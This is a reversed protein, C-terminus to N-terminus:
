TCRHSMGRRLHQGERRMLVCSEQELGVSPLKRHKSGFHALCQVVQETRSASPIMAVPLPGIVPVQLNLINTRNLIPDPEISTAITANAKTSQVPFTYKFTWAEIYDTIDLVYFVYLNPQDALTSVSLVIKRIVHTQSFDSLQLHCEHCQIM